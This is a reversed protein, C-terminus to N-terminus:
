FQRQQFVVADGQELHHWNRIEGSFEAPTVVAYVKKGGATQITRRIVQPKKDVARVRDAERDDEIDNVVVESRVPIIETNERVVVDVAFSGGLPAVRNIKVARAGPRDAFEEDAVATIPDFFEMEVAKAEVRGLANVIFRLFVDDARDSPGRAFCGAFSRNQQDRFILRLFQFQDPGSTFPAVIEIRKPVIVPMM